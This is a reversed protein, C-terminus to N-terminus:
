SPGWLQHCQVTWKFKHKFRVLRVGFGLKLTMATLVTFTTSHIEKTLINSEHESRPFLPKPKPNLLTATKPLCPDTM